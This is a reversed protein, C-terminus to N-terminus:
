RARRLVLPTPAAPHGPERCELAGSGPRLLDHVAALLEEENM